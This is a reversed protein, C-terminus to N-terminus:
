KACGGDLPWICCSPGGLHCVKGPGPLLESIIMVVYESCYAHWNVAVTSPLISRAFSAM